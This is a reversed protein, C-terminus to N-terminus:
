DRLGAWQTQLQVHSPSILLLVCNRKRVPQLLFQLSQLHLQLRAPLALLLQPAVNAVQGVTLPAQSWFNRQESLGVHQKLALSHDVLCVPSLKDEARDRPQEVFWVLSYIFHLVPVFLCTQAATNPSSEARVCCFPNATFDTFMRQDQFM